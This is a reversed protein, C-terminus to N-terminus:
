RGIDSTIRTQHPHILFASEGRQLLKSALKGVWLHPLVAAANNLCSAVPKQNLEGTPTTLKFLRLPFHSRSQPESVGVIEAWSVVTGPEWFAFKVFGPPPSFPATAKAQVMCITGVM